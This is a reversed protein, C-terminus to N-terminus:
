KIIASGWLVVELLLFLLIEQKIKGKGLARAFSLFQLQLQIATNKFITSYKIM